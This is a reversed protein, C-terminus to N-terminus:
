FDVSAYAGACAIKDVGIILSLFFRLFICSNIEYFLYVNAICLQGKRNM